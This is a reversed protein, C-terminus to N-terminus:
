PNGSKATSVGMQWSLRDIKSRIEDIDRAMMEITQAKEKTTEKLTQVDHYVVTCWVSGAIVSAVVFGGVAIITKLNTKIRTEETIM